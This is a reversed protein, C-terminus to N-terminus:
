LSSPRVSKISMRQQSSTLSIDTHHTRKHNKRILFCNIADVIPHKTLDWTKLEFYIDYKNMVNSPFSLIRNKQLCRHAEIISQSYGTKNAFLLFPLSVKHITIIVSQLKTWSAYQNSWLRHKTQCFTGVSWTQTCKFLMGHVSLQLCLNFVLLFFTIFILTIFVNRKLQIFRDVQHTYDHLFNKILM